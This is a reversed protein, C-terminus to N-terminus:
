LLSELFKKRDELFKIEPELKTLADFAWNEPMELLTQKENMDMFIFEDGVRKLSVVCGDMFSTTCPNPQVFLVKADAGFRHFTVNVFGRLWGREPQCIVRCPEWAGRLQALYIKSPVIDNAKLATPKKAKAM